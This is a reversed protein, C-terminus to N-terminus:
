NSHGLMRSWDCQMAKIYKEFLHVREEIASKYCPQWSPSKGHHPCKVESGVGNKRIHEIIAAKEYVFGKHDQVPDAIELIQMSVTTFHSM